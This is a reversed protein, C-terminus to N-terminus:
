YKELGKVNQKLKVIKIAGIEKLKGMAEEVAETNGSIVTQNTYNYNAPVVFKGKERIEKCVKEIEEAKIGMVAAMAYEEKPIYNEM